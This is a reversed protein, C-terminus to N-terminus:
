TGARRPFAPYNVDFGSDPPVVSRNECNRGANVLTGDRRSETGNWMRVRCEWAPSNCATGAATTTRPRWDARRIGGIFARM